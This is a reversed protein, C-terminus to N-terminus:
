TCALPAKRQIAINAFHEGIRDYDKNGMNPIGDDDRRIAFMLWM